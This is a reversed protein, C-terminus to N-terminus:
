EAAPAAAADKPTVRGFMLGGVADHQWTGAYRNGHFLVRASFTGMGPLTVEDLTIVPTTGEWKVAVPVPVTADVDGYRIRSSILWLDGGLHVASSIEYNEERPPRAPEGAAADRDVTFSGTMTAGALLTAFGQNLSAQKAAAAEAQSIPTPEAEDPPAAAAVHPLSSVAILCLAALLGAAMQPLTPSTHPALSPM